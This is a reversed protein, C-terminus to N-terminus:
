EAAVPEPQPGGRILALLDESPEGDGEYEDEDEISKPAEPEAAQARLARQEQAARRQGVKIKDIQDQLNVRARESIKLDGELQAIKAGDQSNEVSNTLRMNEEVLKENEATLRDVLGSWAAINGADKGVPATPMPEPFPYDRWGEGLQDLEDQTKIIRGGLTQHYRWTPLLQRVYTQRPADPPAVRATLFQDPAREAM